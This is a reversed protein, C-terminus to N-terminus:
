RKHSLDALCIVESASADKSAIGSLNLLNKYMGEKADKMKQKLWAQKKEIAEEDEEEEEEDDSMEELEDETLILFLFFLIIWFM